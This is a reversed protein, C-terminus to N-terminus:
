RTVLSDVAEAKNVPRRWICPQTKPPSGVHGAITGKANIATATNNSGDSATPLWSLGAGINWVFSRQEGTRLKAQGIVIGQDNIGTATSHAVGELHPPLVLKGATDWLCAHWEDPHIEIAGVMQGQNCIAKPIASLAGAQEVEKMGERETWSFVQVGGGEKLYRGAVKGAANLAYAASWQGGPCIGKIRGTGGCYFARLFGGHDCSIGAVEGADNLAVGFIAGGGLDGIQKIGLAESWRFARARRGADTSQGIVAGSNNLAWAQSGEGGCTGLDRMGAEPSWVFAHWEDQATLSGGIVQGLDNIAIARSSPGGLTGLELLGGQASWLLACKRGDASNAEILVQDAANIAVAKGSRGALGDLVHLEYPESAPHTLTLALLGGAAYAWWARGGNGHKMTRVGTRESNGTLANMIRQLRLRNKGSILEWSLGPRSQRVSQRGM